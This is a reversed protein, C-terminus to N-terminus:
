KGGRQLPLDPPTSGSRGIVVFAEVKGQGEKCLLPHLAEPDLRLWARLRRSITSAKRTMGPEIQKWHKQQKRRLFSFSAPNRSVCSHCSRPEQPKTQKRRDNGVNKIPCGHDTHRIELQLSSSFLFIQSDMIGILTM